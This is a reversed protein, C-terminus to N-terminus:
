KEIRIHLVIYICCTDFLPLLVSGGGVAEFHIFFLYGYIDIDSSDFPYVRLDLFTYKCGIGM